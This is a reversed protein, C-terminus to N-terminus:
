LIIWRIDWLSWLSEDLHVSLRSLSPLSGRWEKRQRIHIKLRPLWATSKAISRRTTLVTPSFSTSEEKWFVSLNYMFIAKVFLLLIKYFHTSTKQFFGFQMRLARFVWMVTIWTTLNKEFMCFDAVGLFYRRLICSILNQRWISGLNSLFDSKQFVIGFLNSSDEANCNQTGLHPYSAAVDSVSVAKENTKQHQNNRRSHKSHLPALSIPQSVTM